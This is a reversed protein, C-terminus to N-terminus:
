RNSNKLHTAPLVGNRTIDHVAIRQVLVMVWLLMSAVDDGHLMRWEGANNKEYRGHSRDTSPVHENESAGSPVASAM